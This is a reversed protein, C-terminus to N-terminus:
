IAITAAAARSPTFFPLIPMTDTSGNESKHGKKEIEDAPSIKILLIEMCPVFVHPLAMDPIKMFSPHNSGSM